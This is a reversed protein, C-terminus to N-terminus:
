EAPPLSYKAIVTPPVVVEELPPVTALWSWTNPSPPLWVWDVPGVKPVRRRAVGARDVTVALAAAGLAAWAGTAAPEDPAARITVGPASRIWGHSAFVDFVCSTSPRTMSPDCGTAPTLTM